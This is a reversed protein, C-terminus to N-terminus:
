LLQSHQAIDSIPILSLISTLSTMVLGTTAVFSYADAFLTALSMSSLLTPQTTTVLLAPFGSPIIVSRSRTTRTRAAFALGVEVFASFKMVDGRTVTSGSVGIFSAAFLILLSLM